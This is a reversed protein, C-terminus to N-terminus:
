TMGGPINYWFTNRFMNASLLCRHSFKLLDCPITQISLILVILELLMGTDKVLALKFVHDFWLQTSVRFIPSTVLVVCFLCNVSINYFCLM